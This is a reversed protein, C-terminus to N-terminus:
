EGKGTGQAIASCCVGSAPAFCASIIPPPKAPQVLARAKAHEATQFALATDGQKLAARVLGRYIHQKDSAFGIKSAESRVSRRQSEIVQRAQEYLRLALAHDGDREAIVARDTEVPYDLCNIAIFAELSNDLYEGNERGYYFDALLFGTEVIDAVRHLIESRERPTLAAWAPFAAAAAVVAADVDAADGRGAGIACRDEVRGSQRRRGKPQFAHDGCEDVAICARHDLDIAFTIKDRPAIFKLLEPYKQYFEPIDPIITAGSFTILTRAAEADVLEPRLHMVM